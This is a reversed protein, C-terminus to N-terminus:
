MDVGLELASFFQSQDCRVMDFFTINGLRKSRDLSREVRGSVRGTPPGNRVFNMIGMVSQWMADSQRSGRTWSRRTVVDEVRAALNNEM